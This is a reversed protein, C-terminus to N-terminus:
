KKLPPLEYSRPRRAHQIRTRKYKRYLDPVQDPKNPLSHSHSRTLHSAVQVWRGAGEGILGYLLPPTGLVLYQCHPPFPTINCIDMSSLVHCMVSSALTDLSPIVGRVGIGATRLADGARWWLCWVDRALQPRLSLLSVVLFIFFM